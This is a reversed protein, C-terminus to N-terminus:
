GASRNVNTNSERLCCYPSPSVSRYNPGDGTVEGFVPDYTTDNETLKGPEVDLTPTHITNDMKAKELGIDGPTSAMNESNELHEIDGHNEKGAM